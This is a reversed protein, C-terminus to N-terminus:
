RQGDPSALVGAEDAGCPKPRARGDAVLQAYQALTAPAAEDARTPYSLNLLAM